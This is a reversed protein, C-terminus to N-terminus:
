LQRLLEAMVRRRQDPTQFLAARGMKDAPNLPPGKEVTPGERLARAFEQPNLYRRGAEAAVRPNAMNAAGSMLYNALSAARSFVHLAPPTEKSAAATVSTRQAPKTAAKARKVDADVKGLREAYPKMYESRWNAGGAAEITEDIAAKVKTEFDIAQARSGKVRKGVANTSSAAIKEGIEQRLAYLDRADILGDPKVKEQLRALVDDLAKEAFEKIGPKNRLEVLKAEVRKFKIGSPTTAGKAIEPPLFFGDRGGSLFQAATTEPLDIYSIPGGHQKAYSEAVKFDKTFWKGQDAPAKSEGRFLRVHGPAVEGGVLLDKVGQVNVDDLIKERKPGLDAEVKQRAAARAADQEVAREGFRASVGGPQAAVRNQNAIIPSGAPEKALAQAVTPPSGAVLTPAKEAATAVAAIDEPSGILRQDNRTVIRNVGEDGQLLDALRRGVHDGAAVRTKVRPKTAGKAGALAPVADLAAQVTAGAEPGVIKAVGEGLPAAVNEHLADFPLAIAATAQKGVQTRPQFTLKEQADEITKTTDVPQEGLLQPIHLLNGLSQLEANVGGAITGGAGTVAALAAEPLGAVAEGAIKLDNLLKDKLSMNEYKDTPSSGSVAPASAQEAAQEQELRLRFKFKQEQEPTM